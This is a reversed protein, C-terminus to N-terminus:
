LSKLKRSNIGPCVGIDYIQQLNMVTVCASLAQLLALSKENIFYTCTCFLPKFKDIFM